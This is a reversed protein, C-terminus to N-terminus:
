FNHQIGVVQSAVVATAAAGVNANSERVTRVYASTRKSLDYKAGLAFVSKDLAVVSTKDSLKAYNFLVNAKPSVAFRGAVNMGTTKIQGTSTETHAGAYLTHGAVDFQAALNTQTNSNGTLTAGQVFRSLNLRVPGAAYAVGIDTKSAAQAIVPANDNPVGFMYGVAVTVGSFTPSAYVVSNSERVHGTGLIASAGFGSGLKTGIPQRAAQASLTPTNPAGLKFSGFGGTLGTYVEGGLAGISNNAVAASAAGDAKAAASFDGEYLFIATMGNGLDEVGKFTLNTTGQRSNSLAINSSKDANGLTTTTSVISPDFTGTLTVSSQAFAGTAALAALAILTKKMVLIELPQVHFSAAQAGILGRAAPWGGQPFNASNCWLRPANAFFIAPL